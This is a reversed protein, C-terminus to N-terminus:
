FQRNMHSLCVIQWDLKNRVRKEEKETWTIEFLEDSGVKDSPVEVLERMQPDEPLKEPTFAM